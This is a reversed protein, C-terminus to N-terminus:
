LAEAAGDNDTIEHSSSYTNVSNKCKEYINRKTAYEM